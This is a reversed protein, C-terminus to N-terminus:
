KKRKIPAAEVNRTIWWQQLISLVNNVIWYLVLGSPVNWFIATFLVPLFMMMKAQMPDPPTPNLRQQVFMTMGMIIPLVHYPDSASLDSIWLIFPAQRLEVSEILAWYLGIFVPIQVLIPLCGGLPNIKEQKYLEMTAQSLKAKDEGFRAKLAELKPQLKRMNAMSHYSKASLRYFLLKILITIVIISWGWNGIVREIMKMVSLLAASIFWFWGYDITLDLGPAVKQLLHASEPGLYLQISTQVKQGPKVQILDNMAAISYTDGTTQTYFSSHQHENPIWATLFYHQQMAIWGGTTKVHLPRKAMDDFSVKEYRHVGPESYSAGTFSTGVQFIGGGNANEPATRTLMAEVLGTWSAASDNKLLYDVQVLYSGRTLTILKTVQLGTNTVGELPIVLSNQNPALQYSSQNTKFHLSNIVFGQGDPSVLRSMAIYKEGSRNYLLPFPTKNNIQEPYRLLSAEVISGQNLDVALKLVDTQIQITQHSESDLGEAGTNVKNESSSQAYPSSVSQSSTIPASVGQVPMYDKQWANWLLYIVFAISSYLTIRKIDM